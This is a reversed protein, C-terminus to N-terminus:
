NLNYCHLSKFLPIEYLKCTFMNNFTMPSWASKPSQTESGSPIFRSERLVSEYSMQSWCSNDLNLGQSAYQTTNRSLLSFVEYLAERGGPTCICIHVLWNLGPLLGIISLSADWGPLLLFVGLQKLVTFVHM